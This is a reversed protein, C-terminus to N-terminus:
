FEAGRRVLEYEEIDDRMQGVEGGCQMARVLQM